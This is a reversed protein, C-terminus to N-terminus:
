CSDIVKKAELFAIWQCNELLEIIKETNLYDACLGSLKSESPSVKFFLLFVICVLMVTNLM